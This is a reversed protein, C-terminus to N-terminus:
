DSIYLKPVFASKNYVLAILTNDVILEKNPGLKATAALEQPTRRFVKMKPNLSKVEFELARLEYM